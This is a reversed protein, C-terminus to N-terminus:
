KISNIPKNTYFKTLCYPCEAVYMTKGNIDKKIWNKGQIAVKKKCKPCYIIKEM